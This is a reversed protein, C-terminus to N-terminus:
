NLNCYFVILFYNSQKTIMTNQCIKDTELCDKSRGCFIVPEKDFIDDHYIFLQIVLLFQCFSVRFSEWLTPFSNKSRKATKATKESM